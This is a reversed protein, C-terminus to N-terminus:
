KKKRIKIKKHPDGAYQNNGVEIDINCVNIYQRNWDIDDLTHESLFAYEYRQNGYIPFNEVEKYKEVFDRCDRITGPKIESVYEGKITRFKTPTKSPIYLTPHYEIKQKVRRGNEVGRYLIKSGFTQASTYFTNTM